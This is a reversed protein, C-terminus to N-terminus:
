MWNEVTKLVQKKMTTKFTMKSIYTLPAVPVYLPLWPRDFWTSKIKL